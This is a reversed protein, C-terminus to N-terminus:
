LNSHSNHYSEEVILASGNLYYINLSFLFISLRFLKIQNPNLVMLKSTGQFDKEKTMVENLKYKEDISL